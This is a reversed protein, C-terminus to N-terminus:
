WKYVVVDFVIDMVRNWTENPMDESMLSFMRVQIDLKRQEYIDPHFLPLNDILEYWENITDRAQTEFSTM